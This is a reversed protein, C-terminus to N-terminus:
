RASTRRARGGRERSCGQGESCREIIDANQDARPSPLHHRNTMDSHGWYWVLGGATMVTTGGIYAATTATSSGSTSQIASAVLGVALGAVFIPIGIKMKTSASDRIRGVRDVADADGAIRYYDQEDLEAGGQFYKWDNWRFSHEVAQVHDTSGVENGNADRHVDTGVVDNSTYTGTGTSYQVRLADGSSAVGTAPNTACGCALALLAVNIRTIFITMGTM